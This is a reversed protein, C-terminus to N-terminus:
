YALMCLSPWVSRRQDYACIVNLHLRPLSISLKCLNSVFPPFHLNRKRLHKSVLMYHTDSFM